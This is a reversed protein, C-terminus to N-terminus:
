GLTFLYEEVGSPLMVVHEVSFPAAAKKLETQNYGPCDTSSNSTNRYSAKKDAHLVWAQPKGPMHRTNYIYSHMKVPRACYEVLLRCLISFQELSLYNPLDWLLVIDLESAEINCEDIQKRLNYEWVGPELDENESGLCISYILRSVYLRCLYNNYYELSCSNLEGMDLVITRKLEDAEDLMSFLLPSNFRDHSVALKSISQM